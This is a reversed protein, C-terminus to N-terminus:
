VVFASARKAGYGHIRIGPKRDSVGPAMLDGVSPM